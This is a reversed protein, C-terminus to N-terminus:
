FKFAAEGEVAFNKMDNGHLHNSIDQEFDAWMHPDLTTVVPSSSKHFLGSYIEGM